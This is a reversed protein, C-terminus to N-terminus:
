CVTLPLIGNGNGYPLNRAIVLAINKRDLM